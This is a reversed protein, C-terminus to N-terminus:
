KKGTEEKEGVTIHSEIKRSESGQSGRLVVSSSIGVASGVEIHGLVEHISEKSKQELTCLDYVKDCVTKAVSRSVGEETMKKECLKFEEKCLQKESKCMEHSREQWRQQQQQLQQQQQSQLILKVQQHIKQCQQQQKLHQQQKYKKEENCEEITRSDPQREKQKLEEKCSSINEPAFRRCIREVKEEVNESYGTMKIESVKSEKHAVSLGLFFDIEKVESGRPNYYVTVSTRKNSHVPVPLSDEKIAEFLKYIDFGSEETKMKLKMDIGLERPLSVEMEREPPRSKITKLEEGKIIPKDETIPQSTTFPHVNYSVIPMERQYEPEETQKLTVQIKGDRYSVEVRAPVVAHLSTQVGAGHIMPTGTISTAVGASVQRMYNSVSKLKMGVMPGTVSGM